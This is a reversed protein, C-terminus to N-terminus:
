RVREISIDCGGGDPQWVARATLGAESALIQAVPILREAGPFGILTVRQAGGAVILDIASRVHRLALDGDTITGGLPIPIASVDM